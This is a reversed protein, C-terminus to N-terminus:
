VVSAKLCLDEVLAVAGWLPANDTFTAPVIDFHIQARAREKAAQAMTQWWLEGSKTVGGGLIFLQPNLFNAAEGLAAGLARAGRRLIQRALPDGRAALEAVVKGTVEAGFRGGASSFDRAMSPGSALREVCGRKGCFCLPGDAEAVTHGIEGALGEHGRWCRGNLVWGGGVGTSVTVYFLSDYGRGAGFRWEGLAAVNADNDVRVPAAFADELIKQLPTAEWGPVHDSLLALGRRYDTPGGFSVGVALPRKGALAERGLVIMSEMDFRADGDPPSFVRGRALWRPVDQELESAPLVAASLKTGGFDLALLCDGM